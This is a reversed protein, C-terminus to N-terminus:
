LKERALLHIVRKAERRGSAIAGAVSGRHDIETHEGAFGLRGDWISRSLTIFDLPTSSNRSDSTIKVPSSTAGQSYLNSGWRSIVFTKPPEAQVQLRRTILKHIAQVVQADAHQEIVEAASAGLPIVLTPNSSGSAELNDVWFTTESLKRDLTSSTEDLSLKEALFIFKGTSTPNPWWASQYSLVVKDLLGVSTSEIALKLNTDFPPDFTPPRRKMVGLPITSICAQTQYTKLSANSKKTEITVYNTQRDYSIKTVEEGLIYRVGAKEAHTTMASVIQQFGGVPAGDTGSYPRHFSFYRSSVKELPIGAGVELTQILKLLDPNSQRLQLHHTLLQALSEDSPRPLNESLQQKVEELTRDFLELISNGSKPELPGDSGVVVTDRTPAVVVDVKFQRAVQTMPNGQHYGHIFSCGLDIPQPLGEFYTLARGGLRSQAEIIIPKISSRQTIELAASLGAFGGGIIICVEKNIDVNNM